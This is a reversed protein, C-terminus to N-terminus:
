RPVGGETLAEVLGAARENARRHSGIERGILREATAGVRPELPPKEFCNKTLFEMRPSRCEAACTPTRSLAM